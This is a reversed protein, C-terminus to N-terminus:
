HFTIHLGLHCNPREYCCFGKSTKMRLQVNAFWLCELDLVTFVQCKAFRKEGELPAGKTHDIVHMQDVNPAFMSVKAGGRSLHVLCRFLFVFTTLLPQHFTLIPHPAKNEEWYKM